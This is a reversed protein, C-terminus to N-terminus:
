EIVISGDSKIVVSKGANIQDEEIQAIEKYMNLWETISERPKQSNIAIWPHSALFAILTKKKKERKDKDGILPYEEIKIGSLVEIDSLMRPSLRTLMNIPKSMMLRLYKQLGESNEIAALAESIVEKPLGTEEVM